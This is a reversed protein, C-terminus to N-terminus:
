IWFIHEREREREREWQRERGREKSGKIEKKRVGREEGKRNKRLTVYKKNIDIRLDLILDLIIFLIIYYVELHIIIKTFKINKLYVLNSPFDLFFWFFLRIQFKLIKLRITGLTKSFKCTNIFWYQDSLQRVDSIETTSHKM